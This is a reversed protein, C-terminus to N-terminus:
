PNEPILRLRDHEATEKGDLIVYFGDRWRTALNGYYPSFPNGSQGTAIMFRSRELDALDYVARYGPGHVDAFLTDPAGGFSAGAKNLTNNGGDTEVGYGFLDDFYPVRSLVPHPFRAVHAAGWRLRDLPQGFRAELLDLADELARAMQGACVERPGTGIDDCWAKGETLVRALRDMKPYQFAGFVPGLEDAFLVRNLERIWAYFILPAARDREMRLDWAALLALAKKSRPSTPEMDILLPLLERAGLSLTDQQMAAAAEPTFPGLTDLMEHIRRARYHDPWDAAILYPYDDPVIKNNAAVIRGSPPNVTMPLAEFPVYGTWDYDGSWGPVPARGDGAKRIPVRAPAAFGINGATDAYVINQQPSHFDRLAERFEAWNGARSM